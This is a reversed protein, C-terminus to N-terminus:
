VRGETRSGSGSHESRTQMDRPKLWAVLSVLCPSSQSLTGRSSGSFSTGTASLFADDAHPEVCIINMIVLTGFATFLADSRNIRAKLRLKMRTADEAQLCM